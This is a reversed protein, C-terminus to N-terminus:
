QGKLWEQVPQAGPGDLEELQSVQWHQLILELILVKIWAIRVSPRENRWRRGLRIDNEVGRWPM